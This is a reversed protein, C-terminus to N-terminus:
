RAKAEDAANGKPFNFAVASFTSKKVELKTIVADFERTTKLWEAKAEFFSTDGVKEGSAPDAVANFTLVQPLGGVTAVVEFSPMACRVYDEMHGDLIYASLKGAAAELVFEVHYFEDGLVVATGGHPAIHEHGHSSSSTKESAHDHGAHSDGSKSCGSVFSAAIVIALPLSFIRFNM